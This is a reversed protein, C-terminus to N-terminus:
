PEIGIDKYANLGGAFGAVVLEETLNVERIADVPSSCESKQNWKIQWRKRGM